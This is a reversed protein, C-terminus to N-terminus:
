PMPILKFDCRVTIPESTKRDLNRLGELPTTMEMRINATAGKSSGSFELDKVISGPADLGVLVGWLWRPRSQQHRLRGHLDRHQGTDPQGGRNIGNTM